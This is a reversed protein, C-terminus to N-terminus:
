VGGEIKVEEILVSGKVIVAYANLNNVHMKIYNERGRYLRNPYFRKERNDGVVYGMATVTGLINEGSPVAVVSGVDTHDLLFWCQVLDVHDSGFDIKVMRVIFDYGIRNSVITAQATALITDNFPMELMRRMPPVYRPAIFIPAEMNLCGTFVSLPTVLVLM